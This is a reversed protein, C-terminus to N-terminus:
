ASRPMAAPECFADPAYTGSSLGSARGDKEATRVRRLIEDPGRTRMLAIAAPWEALQYPTVVRRAGNSLLATGHIRELAM